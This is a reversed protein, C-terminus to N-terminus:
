DPTAATAAREFDTVDVAVGAPDLAVGDAEIRLWSVDSIDVARRIRFLTQRLSGRAQSGPIEGWLLAALKDRPHVRGPPVALYSLMAGSKRTPLRLLSGAEIRARFGGLLQLRLRAM